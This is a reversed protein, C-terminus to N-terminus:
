ITIDKEFRQIQLRWENPLLISKNEEVGIAVLVADNQAKIEMTESNIVKQFMQLSKNGLTHVKTLVEIKEELFIPNFYEITIKALVLAQKEWNIIKQFVEEFYHTRALDFFNQYVSNNVHAMIDIDNFRIQIPTHHFFQLNQKNTM